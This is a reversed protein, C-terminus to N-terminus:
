KEPIAFKRTLLIYKTPQYFDIEPRITRVMASCGKVEYVVMKQGTDFLLLSGPTLDYRDMKAYYMRKIKFLRRFWKPLDNKKTLEFNM